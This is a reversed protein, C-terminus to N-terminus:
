SMRRGGRGGRHRPIPRQHQKPEEELRRLTDSCGWARGIGIGATMAILWIFVVGRMPDDPYAKKAMDRHGFHLKNFVESTRLAEYVDNEFSPDRESLQSIVGLFTELVETLEKVSMRGADSGRTM